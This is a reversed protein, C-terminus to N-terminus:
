VKFRVWDLQFLLFMCRQERSSYLEGCQFCCQAAKLSGINEVCFNSPDMCLSNLKRGKSFVHM